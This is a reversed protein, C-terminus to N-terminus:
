FIQQPFDPQGPCGFLIKVQTQNGSSIQKCYDGTLVVEQSGNGFTWGNSSSQDIKQGNVYVAVNTPDPPVQDSEFNCSGVLKSISSLAKTLDDPSSVQYFNTTGGAKALQTLNDLNPGIGVVYVQIGAAYAAAAAATAGTLDVTNINAPTGGCNPQGDTALLIYKSNGDNLGNLYATAATLAATTPTGLDFTANNVQSTVAAASDAAVQVEMTTNETCSGRGLGGGTGSATPFFKLGWNVNSSNSLTAAVAPKIANWRTTCNTTDSCLTGYTTATNSCYCDAATSYDMSASRDLVLLVDAPQRTTQSTVMGCNSDASPAVPLDPGADAPGWWAPQVDLKLVFAADEPTGFAGGTAGSAGGDGTLQSSGAQGGHAGGSGGGVEGSSKCDISSLVLSLMGLSACTFRAIGITNRDM